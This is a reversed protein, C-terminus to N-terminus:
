RCGQGLRVLRASMGVGIAEGRFAFHVFRAAEGFYEAPQARGLTHVDRPIRAQEFADGLEGLISPYPATAFRDRRATM